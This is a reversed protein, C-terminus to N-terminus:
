RDDELSLWRLWWIGDALEAMAALPHPEELDCNCGFGVFGTCGRGTGFGIFEGLGGRLDQGLASSSGSLSVYLLLRLIFSM